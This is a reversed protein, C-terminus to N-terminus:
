PAATAATLVESRKTISEIRDVDVRVGIGNEKWPVAVMGEADMTWEPLVIDEAWYRAFQSLLTIM